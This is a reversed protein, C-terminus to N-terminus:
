KARQAERRVCEIFRQIATLAEHGEREIDALEDASIKRDSMAGNYVTIIDGFEEVAKLAQKQSEVEEADVEPLRVFMGGLMCAVQNRAGESDALEIVKLAHLLGLKHSPITDNLENMLTSYSKGVHEAIKEASMGSPANKVDERLVDLLRKQERGM